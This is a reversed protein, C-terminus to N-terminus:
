FVGDKPVPGIKNPSKFDGFKAGARGLMRYKKSIRTGFELTAARRANNRVEVKVRAYPFADGVVLSGAKKRLSYSDQVHREGKRKKGKSRPTSAKADALIAQAVLAVPDRMQDSLIFKQFSKRDERFIAFRRGAMKPPPRSDWHSPIEM